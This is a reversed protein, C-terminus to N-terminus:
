PPFPSVDQNSHALARALLYDAFWPNKPRGPGHLYARLTADAM